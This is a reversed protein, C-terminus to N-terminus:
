AAGTRRGVLRTALAVALLCAGLTGGVYAAALVVHDDAVLARTEGAYASFTTFGGMLGPGLGARLLSGERVLGVAVALLLSGLVNIAFTSWPFGDGAPVSLSWRLLAGVAGGVAVAAYERGM